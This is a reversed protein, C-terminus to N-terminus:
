SDAILTDRKAIEYNSYRDDGTIDDIIEIWKPTTKPNRKTFSQVELIGYEDEGAFTNLKFYRRGDVFCYRHKKIVRTGEQRMPLMREYDRASIIREEEVPVMGDEVADFDLADSSVVIADIGSTAQRTNRAAGARIEDETLKRVSRRAKRVKDVDIPVLRRVTDFYYISDSGVRRRIRHEVDENSGDLYVQEIDYERMVVNSPMEKPLRVLYRREAKVSTSPQGVITNMVDVVRQMKGEFDTENDIIYLRRAGNWAEMTRRDAAVAEDASAEIRVANTETGRYEGFSGIASTMMHIVCDYRDLVDEECMGHEDLLRDFADHETYAKGDLLGRDCLIIVDNDYADAVKAYLDEKFLQTAIIARQYSVPDLSDSVRIGNTMLETASENVVLVTFGHADDKELSNSSFTSVIRSLASTKGGSSGGTLVIRYVKHGKKNILPM